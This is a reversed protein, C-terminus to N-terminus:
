AFLPLVEGEVWPLVDLVEGEAEGRQLLLHDEVALPVEVLLSRHLLKKSGHGLLVGLELDGDLRQEVELFEGDLDEPPQLRYVVLRCM